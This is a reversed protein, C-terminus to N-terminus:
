DWGDPKRINTDPIPNPLQAKKLSKNKIKKVFDAHEKLKDSTTTNQGPTLLILIKDKHHQKVLKMAEVMDSDNSVIVACDYKNLWADNLLHVSLNVDSGKEETDIIEVLNHPPASLPRKVDHTLFHGYKVEINPIHAKLARIYTKQRVPASKDTRGNVRTTFYKICEIQNDDSLLNCFLKNLDLWKYTTGKLARYYLNFGDIYIFTRM